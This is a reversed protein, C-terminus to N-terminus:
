IKKLLSTLVSTYILSGSFMCYYNQNPLMEIKETWWDVWYLVASMNLVLDEFSLEYAYDFLQEDDSKFDLSHWDQRIVVYSLLELKCCNFVPVGQYSFEKLNDKPLDSIIKVYRELEAKKDSYNGYTGIWDKPAKANTVKIKNKEFFVFLSRFNRKHFHVEDTLLVRVASFNNMICVWVVGM